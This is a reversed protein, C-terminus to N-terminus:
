FEGALGKIWFVKGRLGVREETQASKERDEVFCPIEPTLPTGMGMVFGTKPDHPASQKHRPLPRAGFSVKLASTKTSPPGTFATAVARSKWDRRQEPTAHFLRPFWALPVTITRGDKLRVSLTDHDSLVDAVREDAATAM